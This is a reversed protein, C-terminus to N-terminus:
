RLGRGRGGRLMQNTLLKEGGIKAIIPPPIVAPATCGHAHSTSNVRAAPHLALDPAHHPNPSSTPLLFLPLSLCRRASLYIGLTKTDNQAIPTHPASTGQRRRGVVHLWCILGRKATCASSVQASVPPSDCMITSHYTAASTGAHTAAHSNTGTYTNCICLSRPAFGM